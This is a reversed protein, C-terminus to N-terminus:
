RAAESGRTLMRPMTSSMIAFRNWSAASSAVWFAKKSVSLPSDFVECASLCPLSPLTSDDVTFGVLGGVLVLLARRGGPTCM